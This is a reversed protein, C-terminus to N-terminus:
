TYLYGGQRGALEAFVGKEVIRGKDLIIIEDASMITSLRHAITLITMKGKLGEMASQIKKENEVDISSTAEDLILLSPERLIARALAIRQRQGGSLRIGRDGIHTDIGNPMEKIFDAAAALELAQWIDAEGASPKAWLLNEKITGRFLFTEQPVFGIAMRWSPMMSPLLPEGDILVSGKSPELLGNIIDILTSKGSGSPGTVAVNSRVPISFTVDELANQHGGDYSYSVGKIEIGKKIVLPRTDKDVLHEERGQRLEDLCSSFSDWAPFMLMLMQFSIQIGSFTPWIRLFIVFLIILRALGENFVTLAMYVFFAILVFTGSNYIFSSRTFLDVFDVYSKQIGLNKEAFRGVHVKEAGYSKVEKIGNLHEHVDSLSDKMLTNLSQSFSGLRKNIPRLFLFFLVGIVVAAITGEPSIFACIGLQVILMPLAPIFQMIIQTGMDVMKLENSLANAIDSRRRSLLVSWKANAFAEYLEVSLVKNFGTRIESSTMTIRRKLYEQVISFVAFLFLLAALAHDKNSIRDLIDMKIPLDLATSASFSRAMYLFPALLLLILGEMASSMTSLLAFLALKKGSIRRLCGFYRKISTRM